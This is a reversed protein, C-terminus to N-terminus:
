LIIKWFDKFLKSCTSELM